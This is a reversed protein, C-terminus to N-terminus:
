YIPDSHSCSIIPLSVYLTPLSAGPHNAAVVDLSDFADSTKAEDPTAHRIFLIFLAVMAICEYYEGIPRLYGSIHYFCVSLLSFVAIIAPLAV